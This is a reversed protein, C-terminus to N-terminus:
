VQRSKRGIKIKIKIKKKKPPHSIKEIINNIKIDNNPIFIDNNKENKNNNSNKNLNLIESKLSIDM